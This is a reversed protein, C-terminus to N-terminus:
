SDHRRNQTDYPKVHVVVALVPWKQKGISTHLSGTQRVHGQGEFPLLHRSVTHPCQGQCTNSTQCTARWCRTHQNPLRSVVTTAAEDLIALDAAAAPDEALLDRLSENYIEMYSVAVSYIRDSRMDVERFVHQLARPIVGRQSYNRADGTM